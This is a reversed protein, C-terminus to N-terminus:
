LIKIKWSCMCINLETFKMNKILFTSLSLCESGRMNSVSYLCPAGVFPTFRLAPKKTGSDSDSTRFKRVMSDSDSNWLFVLVGCGQREYVSCLKREHMQNAPDTIM